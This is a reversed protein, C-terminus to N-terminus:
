DAEPITIECMLRGFEREEVERYMLRDGIWVECAIPHSLTHNAIFLYAKSGARIDFSREWPAKTIEFRMGTTTQYSIDM